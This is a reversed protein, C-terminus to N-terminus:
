EIAPSKTFSMVRPTPNDLPVVVTRRVLPGRCRKRRGYHMRAYDFSYLSKKLDLGPGDYGLAFIPGPYLEVCGSTNYVLPWMADFGHKFRPEMLTGFDGPLPHSKGYPMYDPVNFVFRILLGIKLYKRVVLANDALTGDGMRLPGSGIYSVVAARIVGIPYRSIRRMDAMLHRRQERSTKKSNGDLDIWNPCTRILSTVERARNAKATSAFALRSCWICSIALILAFAPVTLARPCM